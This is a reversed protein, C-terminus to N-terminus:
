DDGDDDSEDSEEWMEKMLRDYAAQEEAERAEEARKGEEAERAEEARKEEELDADLEAKAEDFERWLSETEEEHESDTTNSDNGSLEGNFNIDEDSSPYEPLPPSKPSDM